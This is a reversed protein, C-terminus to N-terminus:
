ARMRARAKNAMARIAAQVRERDDGTAYDRLACLRRYEVAEPTLPEGDAATPARKGYTGKSKALYRAFRDAFHEATMGNDRAWGDAKMAAAAANIDEPTQMAAITECAQRSKTTPNHMAGTADNVLEFVDGWTMRAPANESERPIPIPSPIPSPIPAPSSLGFVRTNKPHEEPSSDAFGHYSKAARRRGKERSELIEAVSPNADHWGHFRYGDPEALWLGRGVLDRALKPNGGLLKVAAHPIFGDTLQDMSWSQAASWLGRTALGMELTKRHRWWDDSTKAWTM